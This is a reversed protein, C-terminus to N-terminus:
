RAVQLISAHLVKSVTPRKTRKYVREMTDVHVRKLRKQASWRRQMVHVPVKTQSRPEAHDVSIEEHVTERPKTEPEVVTAAPEDPLSLSMM